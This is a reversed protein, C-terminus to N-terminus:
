DLNKGAWQGSVNLYLGNSRDLGQLRAFSANWQNFSGATQATAANSAAATANDFATRGSTVSLSWANYGQMGGRLDGSRTAM